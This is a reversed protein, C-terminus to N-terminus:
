KTVSHILRQRTQEAISSSTEISDTGNLRPRGFLSWREKRRQKEKSISEAQCEACSEFAKDVLREVVLGSNVSNNDDRVETWLDVLTLEIMADKRELSDSM